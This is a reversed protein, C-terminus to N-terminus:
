WSRPTRSTYGRGNHGGSCATSAHPFATGPLVGERMRDLLSSTNYPL